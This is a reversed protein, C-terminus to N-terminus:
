ASAVPAQPVDAESDYIPPVNHIVVPKKLMTRIGIYGAGIATWVTIAIQFGAGQVVFDLQPLTTIGYTALIAMVAGSAARFRTSQLLREGVHIETGDALREIIKGARVWLATGYSALVTYVAAAAMELRPELEALLPIQDKFAAVVGAIIVSIILISAQSNNETINQM